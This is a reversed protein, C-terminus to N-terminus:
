GYFDRAEPDLGFMNSGALGADPNAKGDHGADSSLVAFGEALPSKSLDGRGPLGFAPVVNGDNGGNFQHVFRGNWEDPLRFEFHIAYTKGDQGTREATSGEVLCHAVPSDKGPAMEKASLIKVDKLGLAEASLGDCAAKEAAKVGGSICLTFLCASALLGRKMRETMM